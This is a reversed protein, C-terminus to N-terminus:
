FRSPRLGNIEGYIPFTEELRGEAPFVGATLENAPVGWLTEYDIPGAPNADILSCLEDLLNDIANAM